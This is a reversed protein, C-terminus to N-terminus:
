YILTLQLFVSYLTTDKEYLDQFGKGPLFAAAGLAMTWNNNLMPRGVLGLSLDTGLSADIDPQFTFGELSETRHFRLISANLVARLEPLIEADLGANYLFLGPNVFNSQGETKSSRLDPLHSNRNVLNVGQLRVAQRNWFSFRGGAFAPAELISDFGTATGDTPKGDGSAWLFSGRVRVWDVDVSLEVTALFAEVDTGRGALQNFEDTGRAAYLAHSLNFGGIHGDGAWGFYAIELEHERVTGALAPRVLTDNEDYHTSGEDLNMHFSLQATYGPWLFDQVYLNAVGVLQGRLDFTNLESNTDKELMDFVAANWQVRNSAFTGFLRAGLNTDSFMLGRFDSAFPQIGARFAVFDYHESVDFLHAEALAEQLAFHADSRSTEDRPDPNVLANERVDVYNYNYVGTLRLEWDRPRFSSEGQYLELTLGLEEVVALQDGSGFFDSRKSAATSTGSPVPLRRAEVLTDSRGTVVLFTNEGLLPYDGKLANQRYPNFGDGPENLVYDPFGIRWRNRVPVSDPIPEEQKKPEAAQLALLLALLASM